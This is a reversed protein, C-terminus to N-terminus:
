LDVEMDNAKAWEQIEKAIAVKFYNGTGDYPSEENEHLVIPMPALSDYEKQELYGAKVMQSLVVNRRKWAKNEALPKGDYRTPNYTTTAKQLGILIAAEQITLSDPSTNFYTKSAVKIGYANNGYDVTNL